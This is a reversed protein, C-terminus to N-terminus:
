GSALPCVFGQGCFNAPSESGFGFYARGDASGAFKVWASVTHGQPVIVNDNVLWGDSDHTILGFNGDHAALPSIEANPYYRLVSNYRRLNGDEFDEIVINSLLNREELPELRLQSRWRSSLPRILGGKGWERTKRQTM